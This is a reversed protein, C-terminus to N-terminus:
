NYHRPKDDSSENKGFQSNGSSHRTNAIERTSFFGIFIFFCVIYLFCLLRLASRRTCIRNMRVDTQRIVANLRPRSQGSNDSIRHSFALFSVKQMRSWRRHLFRKRMTLRHNCCRSQSLHRASLDNAKFKIKFFLIKLKALCTFIDSKGKSKRDPLNANILNTFYMM